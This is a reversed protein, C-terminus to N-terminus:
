AIQCIPIQGQRSLGRYAQSSHESIDPQIQRRCYYYLWNVSHMHWLYRGFLQVSNVASVMFWAKEALAIPSWYYCCDGLRKAISLDLTEEKALGCLCTYIM